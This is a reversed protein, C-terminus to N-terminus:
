LKLSNSVEFDATHIYSHSQLFRNMEDKDLLDSSIAKKKVADQSVVSGEQSDKSLTKEIATLDSPRHGCYELMSIATQRPDLKWCSYPIALMQIGARHLDMYREVNDLWMLTTLGTATLHRDPDYRAVSPVLFRMWGRVEIEMQRFEEPSKGASDVFAGLNSKIWSEAERYLYLTKAQPYLEHLWDGLEIVWSRGKLVWATQAPTKCLLRVTADLLMKMEVQKDPQTFRAIILQTLSDPESMNIVGPLQALLKSALTSGCRGMSQIFILKRDDLTVSQALGIMIEIPLTIVRVASEYQAQYYFPAQSLEDSSAGDVFVVRGGEFDFAYLSIRDNTLIEGVDIQGHERLEFDNINVLGVPDPRRKSLIEFETAIM